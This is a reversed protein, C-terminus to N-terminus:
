PHMPITTPDNTVNDIVSAGAIVGSGSAVTVKAYGRDMSTQGAKAKFPQVAQQWEGPALTVTYTALTNGAGDLLTVDVTAPTIGTNTLSINSRYAANETLQPLWASQGNALATTADYSAYDQGYTGSGSQNYTRSTVVVPQDSQIELAGSGTAGLQSVIDTLIAQSGAPV